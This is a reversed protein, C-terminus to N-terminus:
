REQQPMGVALDQSRLLDVSLEVSQHRRDLTDDRSLRATYYRL